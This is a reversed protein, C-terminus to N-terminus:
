VRTTEQVQPKTDGSRDAETDEYHIQKEVAVIAKDALGKDEFVKQKSCDTISMSFPLRQWPNSFLKCFSLEELTRGYTEPYFLYIFCLEFFIWGCYIALYKWEIATFAKPNVNTSFFQAMKGWIQFVGIGRSRQAYPWLEVLYALLSLKYWCSDVPQNLFSRGRLCSKSYTLANNGINYCPSYAFYFFLSAISASKNFFGHIKAYRMREFSITMSIFALCMTTASIMYMVRRPFRPVVLAFVVANILNWCNNALNIRSKAYATTYGMVQFLLGSYYSLLTNGSMQTFMGVFMTIFIRRRMGPTKFLDAWTQKSSEYELQITSRIQAM